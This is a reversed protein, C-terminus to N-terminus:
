TLSYYLAVFGIIVAVAYGLYALLLLPGTITTRSAFIVLSSGIVLAAIILGVLIRDSARDMIHQLRRLDAEAVEFSLAGTSFRKLITNVNVPLEFLGEFAAAASRRARRGMERVAYDKGALEEMYPEVWTSFNFEPDLTRGIDAVMLIVKLMLMLTMPVKMNYRRMVATLEQIMRSINVQGLEFESYDMLAIFLDDRLGETDEPRV